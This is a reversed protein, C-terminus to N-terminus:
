NCINYGEKIVQMDVDASDEVLHIKGLKLVMIKDAIEIAKTANQESILIGANKENHIQKVKDFFMGVYKPSLGATPEDLLILEPNQMMARGFAVMQSEGGSLSGAKQTRREFIDPFVDYVEELKQKKLKKDILTAGISLNEKVTLNPFVNNEQPVFAIGRAATEYAACGSIDENNYEISGRHLPLLRALTKMLTTKGAGNAGLVAYIEHNVEFSINHLVDVKGYGSVIDKVKLM